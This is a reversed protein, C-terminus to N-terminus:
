DAERRVDKLRGEIDALRDLGLVRHLSDYRESPRGNLLAGLEAYSLFPRYLQMPPDWGLEAVPRRREGHRQFFSTRDDLDADAAWHCELTGGGRHGDLGLGVRIYREGTTHLNRWGDRWEDTRTAWRQNTGTLALEAAEAFSSKGSGNRGTVITLGPGPVLELVAPEGIGRFGTVSISTLYAGAAGQPRGAASTVPPDGEVAGAPGEGLVTILVLDYAEKPLDAEELRELLVDDVTIVRDDSM